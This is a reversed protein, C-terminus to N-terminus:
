MDEKMLQGTNQFINRDRICIWKEWKIHTCYFICQPNHKPCVGGFKKGLGICTLLLSRKEIEM